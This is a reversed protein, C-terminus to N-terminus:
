NSGKIKAINSLKMIYNNIFTKIEQSSCSNAIQMLLRTLSELYTPMQANHCVIALYLNLVIPINFTIDNMSLMSAKPQLMQLYSKICDLVMLSKDYTVVFDMALKGFVTLM